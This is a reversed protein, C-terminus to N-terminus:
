TIIASTLAGWWWRIPTSATDWISANTVGPSAVTPMGAQTIALASNTISAVGASFSPSGWTSTPAFVIGGAPYSGGVIETGDGSEDTTGLSMLKFKASNSGGFATFSNKGVMAGLATQAIVASMGSTAM